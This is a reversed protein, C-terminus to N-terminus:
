RKVHRANGDWFVPFGFIFKRLHCVRARAHLMRIPQSFDDPFDAVPITLRLDVLEEFGCWCFSYRLCPVSTDM